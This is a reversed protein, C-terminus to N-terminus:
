RILNNKNLFFDGFIWISLFLEYKSSVALTLKSTFDFCSFSEFFDSGTSDFSSNTSKAFGTHSNVFM